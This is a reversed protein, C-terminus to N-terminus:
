INYVDAILQSKRNIERLYAEDKSYRKQVPHEDYNDQSLSCKKLWRNLMMFILLIAAFCSLFFAHLELALVIRVDHPLRWIEEKEMKSSGM